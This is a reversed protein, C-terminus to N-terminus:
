AAVRLRVDILDGSPKEIRKFQEGRQKQIRQFLEDSQVQMDSPKASHLQNTKLTLSHVTVYDVFMLEKETAQPTNPVFM